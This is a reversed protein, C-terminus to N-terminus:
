TAYELEGVQLPWRQAQIRGLAAYYQLNDVIINNIASM